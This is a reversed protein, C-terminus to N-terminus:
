QRLRRVLENQALKDGFKALIKLQALPVQTLDGARKLEAATPAEGPRVLPKTRTILDQPSGETGLGEAAPPPTAVQRPATIGPVETYPATKTMTGETIPQFPTLNRSEQPVFSEPGVASSSTATPGFPSPKAKAAAKAQAAVARAQANLEAKTMVRPFPIPESKPAPPLESFPTTRVPTGAISVTEPPAAPMDEIRTSTAGPFPTPEPAPPAGGAIKRGLQELAWGAGPIRTAHGISRGITGAVEPNMGGTKPVPAANKTPLEGILRGALPGAATAALPVASQGIIQGGEGQQALKQQELDSVGVLPGAGSIAASYGAAIPNTGAKSARQYEAAAERGGQALTGKSIDMSPSGFFFKGPSGFPTGEPAPPIMGNVTNWAATGAGKLSVGEGSIHGLNGYHIADLAKAQEKAPLGKYDPDIQLLVKHKEALPLNHFAPDNQWDIQPTDGM